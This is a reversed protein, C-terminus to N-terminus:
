KVRSAKWESKTPSTNPTPGIKEITGTISDGALTGHYKFITINPGSSRTVTFSVVDNQVSGDAIPAPGQRTTVTGTLVNDKFQLSATIEAPGTRTQSTWKWNGSADAALAAATSAFFALFATLLLRHNKM